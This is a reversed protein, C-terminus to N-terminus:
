THREQNDEFEFFSDNNFDETM